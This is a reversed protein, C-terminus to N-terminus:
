GPLKTNDRDLLNRLWIIEIGMRRAIADFMELDEKDVSRTLILSVIYGIIFLTFYLPLMWFYLPLSKAVAYIVAGILASGAVPRLYKPTFPHIGTKRFLLVFSSTAIITYSLMTAVAAGVVGLGMHKILVYNLAVNLLAGFISVNMLEKSMGKVLMVHGSAGFSGQILYCIALLRLPLAAGLFREGFLFTISMESFFFLVFFLPLTAAFGWKTIVQFTRKLEDHLGKGHLDGAIPMFVFGIAALPLTLAYALAVAINYVGVTEIEVYRGLMLTDTWNFLLVMLSSVLITGSFILLKRKMDGSRVDKLGLRLKRYAYSSVSIFVMAISFLYAYIISIFPFGSFLFIGLLLVFYLPQGIDIYYVKARINGYGRLINSLIQSMVFLFVYPSLVRLYKVIEPKYFVNNAAFGALAYILASVFLGSFLGLQLASRHITEADQRSGKGIYISIYRPVGEQLGLCSIMSVFSVIAVVLAYIGFEEKTTSRAILVKIVFWLVSSSFMGLFVLTTGKLASKLSSKIVESM